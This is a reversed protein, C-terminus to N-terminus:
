LPSMQQSTFNGHTLKEQRENRKGKGPSWEELVYEVPYWTKDENEEDSTSAMLEEDSM